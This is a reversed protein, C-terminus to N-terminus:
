TAVEVPQPYTKLEGGKKHSSISRMVFFRQGPHKEAMAKAVDEARARNMHVVRPPTKGQKSWIIHIPRAM